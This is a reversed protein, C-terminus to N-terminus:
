RRFSKTCFTVVFNSLIELDANQPEVPVIKLVRLSLMARRSYLTLSQEALIAATGNHLVTGGTENGEFVIEVLLDCKEAEDWTGQVVKGGSILSVRFPQTSVEAVQGWVEGAATFLEEGEQLCEAVRPDVAEMVALIAYERLGERVAHQKLDRYRLVIGFASFFLLFALFLDLVSGKRASKKTRMKM